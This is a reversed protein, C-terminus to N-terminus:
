VERRTALIHSSDPWEIKFGNNILLQEIRHPADSMDRLSLLKFHVEVGIARLTESGLERGLGELVELEFGEVDIKIINPAAVEGSQILEAGPRVVVVSTVSGSISSASDIIRSTAGLEDDGQLFTVTGTERALGIPRPDVNSLAGCAERLRAFNVPSPEFAFVKGTSGIRNAFMRTYYGINAGVDWVCDGERLTASFHNDYRTEYGRGNLWVALLRNMGTVRGISRAVIVVGSTRWSM